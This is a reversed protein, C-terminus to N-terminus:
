RKYKADKEQSAEKESEFDEPNGSDYWEPHEDPNILPNESSEYVSEGKLKRKEKEGTSILFHIKKMWKDRDHEDKCAYVYTVNDYKIYFHTNSDEVKKCESKICNIFDLKATLLKVPVGNKNLTSLFVNLCLSADDLVLFRQFEKGFFTKSATKSSYGSCYILTGYFSSGKLITDDKFEIESSSLSNPKSKSVAGKMEFGVM